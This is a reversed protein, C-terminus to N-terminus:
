ETDDDLNSLIEIKEYNKYKISKYIGSSITEHNGMTWYNESPPFAECSCKLTVNSGIPAKAIENGVQLNPPVLIIIM